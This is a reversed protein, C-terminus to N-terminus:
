LTQESIYGAKAIVWADAMDYAEDIIIKQGKRPGSQLIKTGAQILEGSGNLYKHRLKIFETQAADSLSTIAAM